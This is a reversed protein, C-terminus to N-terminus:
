KPRKYFPFPAVRARARRGRLDVEFETGPEWCGAPLYALGVSKKLFPTQTGSTVQGARENAIYVDYGHRAIGPEAMEFGCLKRQLGTERQKLLAERGIFVGKEPKFIWGLGAELVTTTEDIDNGYLCMGAELRLTDRAGLGCPKIGFEAGAEMLASWMAPAKASAVYVEFGDEGTYGTRSLFCPEGNVDTEAFRYYKITELPFATLKKVTELARPGQVAIQAFDASRNVADAGPVAHLKIWEFDKETTGANVCLFYRGEGRKHVLVDDVFAGKETTLASYQAQGAALKSADNPTLHQILELARPGEIFIEGMHSVDFLGAGTRVAMHEATVGEYQVPMEWGAFPVMKAGSSVHVDYLPTRKLPAAM